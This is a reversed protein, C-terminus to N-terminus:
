MQETWSAHKFLRAPNGSVNFLRMVIAAFLMSLPIVTAVLLAGRWNGLLLLLVIIVLIAGEILNTIVISITRKVLATRYYFPEIMVGAPLSKRIEAIREAVREAVTRSNEGKLMIAMGTVVEGEGDASVAGQRIAAGEVIEGLDKVFVPVGEKGTKVVINGIDETNEVLGM